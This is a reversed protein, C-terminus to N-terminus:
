SITINPRVGVKGGTARRMSDEAQDRIGEFQRRNIEALESERQALDDKHLRVKVLERFTDASTLPKGDSVANGRQQEQRVDTTVEWGQDRLRELNVPENVVWRVVFNAETNSVHLDNKEFWSRRGKKPTPTEDMSVPTETKDSM